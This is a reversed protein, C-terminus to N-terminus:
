KSLNYYITCDPTYNYLTLCNTCYQLIIYSVNYGGVLELLTKVVRVIVFYISCFQVGRYLETLTQIVKYRSQEFQLSM